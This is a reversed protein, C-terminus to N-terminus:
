IDCGTSIQIIASCDFGSACETKVATKDFGTVTRQTNGASCTVIAPVKSIIVAVHNDTVTSLNREM